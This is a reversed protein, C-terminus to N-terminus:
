QDATTWFGTLYIRRAKKTKISDSKPVIIELGKLTFRESYDPSAKAPAAM